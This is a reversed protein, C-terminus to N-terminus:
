FLLTRRQVCLGVLLVQVPLVPLEIPDSQAGDM